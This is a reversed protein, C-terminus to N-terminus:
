WGKAGAGRIDSTYVVISYNCMGLAGDGGAAGVPLLEVAVPLSSMGAPSCSMVFTTHTVCQLHAAFRIAPQLMVDDTASCMYMDTPVPVDAGTKIAIPVTCVDSQLCDVCRDGCIEIFVNADTGAFKIDSTCVVVKYPLKEAAAVDEQSAAQLCV